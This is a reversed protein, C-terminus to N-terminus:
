FHGRGASDSPCLEQYARMYARDEITDSFGWVGVEDHRIGYDSDGDIYLLYHIFEHVLQGGDVVCHRPWLAVEIFREPTFMGALVAGDMLPERWVEPRVLVDVKQTATIGLMRGLSARQNSAYENAVIEFVRNAAEYDPPLHQPYQDHLTFNLYRTHYDYSDGCGVGFLLLTTTLLRQPM